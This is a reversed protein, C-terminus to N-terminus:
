GRNSPIFRRAPRVHGLFKLGLRRIGNHTPTPAAFDFSASASAIKGGKGRSATETAGSVFVDRRRRLHEPSFQLRVRVMVLRPVHVVDRSVLDPALKSANQPLRIESCMACAFFPASMQM